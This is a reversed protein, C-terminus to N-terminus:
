GGRPLVAESQANEEIVHELVCRLPLLFELESDAEKGVFCVSRGRVKVDVIEAVTRRLLVSKGIYGRFPHAETLDMHDIKVLSTM